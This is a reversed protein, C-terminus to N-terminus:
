GEAHTLDQESLFVQAQYAWQLIGSVVIMQVAFAPTAGYEARARRCLEETVQVRDSEKCDACLWSGQPLLKIGNTQRYEACVAFLRRRGEEQYVGALDEFSFDERLEAPLQGYFHRHYQWMTDLTPTELTESLLIVRRPLYRVYHGAAPVQVNAKSEYEMRARRIRTKAYQLEAIKEDARREAQKLAGVIKELDDYSLIEKIEALSLGMCRLLQITNLRVVEQRSYYRYGTWEDTRCPKVLGIRDYHRLTEATMHVLKAAESVSFFEKMATYERSMQTVCLNISIIVM